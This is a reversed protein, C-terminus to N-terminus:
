DQDAYLEWLASGSGCLLSGAKHRTKKQWTKEQAISAEGCVEHVAPESM